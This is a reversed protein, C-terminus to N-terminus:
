FEESYVYTNFSSGIRQPFLAGLEMAVWDVDDYEFFVKDYMQFMQDVLSRAFDRFMEREMGWVYAIENEELFALASIQGQSVAYVVEEPMLSAFVEFGATWPNVNEHTAKYHEYMLRCCMDYEAMGPRCRYLPTVGGAGLLDQREAEVEYCKRVCSFGGRLLFRILEDNESDTMVQLGRRLDRCLLHFLEKAECTEFSNLDFTLYINRGHYLSESVDVTGCFQGDSHVAYQKDKRQITVM